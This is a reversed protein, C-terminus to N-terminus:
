RHTTYVLLSPHLLSSHRWMTQFRRAAMDDQPCRQRGAVMHVSAVLVVPQLLLRHFLPPQPHGEHQPWQPAQSRVIAAPPVVPVAPNRGRAAQSAVPLPSKLPLHPPPLRRATSPAATPAALPLLLMDSAVSLPLHAGATSRVRKRRTAAEEVMYCRGPQLQLVHHRWRAAGTNVPMPPLTAARPNLARMPINDHLTALAQMLPFPFKLDGLRGWMAGAWEGWGM